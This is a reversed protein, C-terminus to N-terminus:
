SACAGAFDKARSEPSSLVSEYVEAMADGNRSWLFFHSRLWAGQRLAELRDSNSSLQELTQSLERTVSAPHGLDIKIGSADDVIDAAGQHNFCVVPLARSMAELMVNGSTDRFSTFVLLDAWEYHEYVAVHPVVGLWAISSIRLRTALTKLAQEEPGQGLIRLTYAFPAQKLARLLINLGKHPQLDGVWLLRLPMDAARRPKQRFDPVSLLGTELLVTSRTSLALDLKSKIERNAALVACAAQAVRRPRRSLHLQYWNILNRAGERIAGRVGASPLFRWPFQQTGGVPGWVFPIPLKWLYGPERYGCINVHHALDFRLTKHIQVASRYAERQWQRYAHYPYAGISPLLRLARQALSEGIYVFQIHEPSQCEQQYRQIDAKSIESTLVVVDYRRSSELVRGWGVAWESGRYPSCKYALLLLRPKRRHRKHLVHGNLPSVAPSQSDGAASALNDGTVKSNM